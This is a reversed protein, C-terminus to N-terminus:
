LGLLRTVERADGFHELDLVARAIADAKNAPLVLRANRLFKDVIRARDVEEPNGASKRRTLEFTGRRTRILVTTPREEPPYDTETGLECTIKDTLAQFAPDGLMDITLHEPGVARSVIMRAVNCPWSGHMAYGSTPRFSAEYRGYAFQNAYQAPVTVDVSEVEQPRIDHELVLDRTCEIANHVMGAATYIKFAIDLCKWSSGLDALVEDASWGHKWAHSAFLGAPGDLTSHSCEYGAEAMQAATLGSMAAWGPQIPKNRGSGEGWGQCTGSAFSVALSMADAVRDADLGLLRGAAASAGITGFISTTHFGASNLADKNCGRALRIAVEAAVIWGEALAWGDLAQQEAIGMATPVGFSETHVVRDLYRDDYECGHILCGNLFAALPPAARDPFGIITCTPTSEFARVVQLLKQAYGDEATTSAYAVGIGDLIHLKAKELLADRATSTRLDFSVAFDALSEALTRSAATAM